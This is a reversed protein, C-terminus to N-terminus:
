GGREGGETGGVELDRDLGELVLLGARRAQPLLDGDELLRVIDLRKDLAGEVRHGLDFALGEFTHESLCPSFALAISPSLSVSGSVALSFSLSLHFVCVARCLCDRGFAAACCMWEAGEKWWAAGKHHAAVAAEEDLVRQLLNDLHGVGVLHTSCRCAERQHARGVQV